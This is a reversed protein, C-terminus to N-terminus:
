EFDGAFSSLRGGVSLLHVCDASLTEGVASLGRTVVTQCEAFRRAYLLQLALEASLHGVAADGLRTYEDLSETFCVLAEDWNGLGRLALGRRFRADASLRRSETLLLALADDFHALADKFAAAALARDGAMLLFHVSRDVAAASGALLLQ